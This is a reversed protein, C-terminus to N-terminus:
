QTVLEEYYRKKLSQYEEPVDGTMGELLLRRYEDPTMFDEPAPIDVAISEPSDDQDGGGGESMQQMQQQMQQMQQMQEQLADITDLIRASANRQYGEGAMSRGKALNEEAEGMSDAAKEAYESASGDATPM